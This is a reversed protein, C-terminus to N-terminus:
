VVENPYKERINNKADIILEQIKDANVTDKEVSYQLWMKNAEDVTLFNDNWSVANKMTEYALARLEEPVTTNKNIKFTSM